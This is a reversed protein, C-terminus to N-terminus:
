WMHLRLSVHGLAAAAHLATWADRTKEALGVDVHPRLLRVV